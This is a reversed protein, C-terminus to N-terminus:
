HPDTVFSEGHSEALNVNPKTQFNIISNNFKKFSSLPFFFPCSIHLHYQIGATKYTIAKSQAGGETTKTLIRGEKGELAESDLQGGAALGALVLVACFWMQFM